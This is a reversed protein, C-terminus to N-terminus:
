YNEIESPPLEGQLAQLNMLKKCINYMYNYVELNVLKGNDSLQNYQTSERHIFTASPLWQVERLKGTVQLLNLLLESM